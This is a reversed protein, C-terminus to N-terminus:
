KRFYFVVSCTMDMQMLNQFEALVVVNVTYPLPKAFKIEVHIKGTKELTHVDGCTLDPTFNFAYLTYGKGFENIDIGLGKDNHTGHDFCFHLANFCPIHQGNSFNPILAEFPLQDISISVYNVNYHQFNLSNNDYSENYAWLDVIGVILEQPLQGLFLNDQQMNLQGQSVSFSLVETCHLPYKAAKGRLLVAAHSNIVAQAVKVWCVDLSIDQLVLKFNSDTASSM